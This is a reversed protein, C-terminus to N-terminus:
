LDQKVLHAEKELKVPQVVCVQLVLIGLKVGKELHEQHDVLELPEQMSLM